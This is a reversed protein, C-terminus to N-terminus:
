TLDFLRRLGAEIRDAPISSFGLRMCNKPPRNDNFFMSGPDFLIGHEAAQKALKDTDLEDPGEIWYSSGGFSPHKVNDPFYESVLTGMIKWRRNFAHSLRRILADHYGLKLFRAVIYQNNAPPHRLMSRRLSRAERIFERPAVMYGVRLGPALTKSLSGIYIVCGEKDLSKLAPTPSGIYNLESEYDDEIIVQQNRYALELLAIRREEPLTVTTPYQHSPTIYLCQCDTIAPDDPDIGQQDLTLNVLNRTFISFINRADVYGPNELGVYRSHDVLLQACMYIAHQAGLTVLVEDQNAFIGRRPLLKSTIQYVLEDYDRDFHDMAWDHIARVGAAERCCERWNAIPFLKPDYQGYIFPYPYQKWNPPKKIQSRATPRLLLQKSWDIKAANAYDLTEAPQTSDQNLRNKIMDPNVYFGSRERSIIFGMDVLHQYAHVVTNRAVNLQEALKRSSPLSEEPSIYGGLIADILMEQIRAQLTGEGHQPLKFLYETM